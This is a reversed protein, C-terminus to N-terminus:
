IGKTEKWTSLGPSPKLYDNPDAYIHQDLSSSVTGTPVAHSFPPHKCLQLPLMIEYLGMESESNSPRQLDEKEEQNLSYAANTTLESDTFCM